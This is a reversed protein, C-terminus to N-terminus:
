AQRSASNRVAARVADERDPLVHADVTETVTPSSPGALRSVDLLPLGAAMAHSVFCHRLTTGAFNRGDGKRVALRWARLERVLQDDPPIVPASHKLKPPAPKGDSV